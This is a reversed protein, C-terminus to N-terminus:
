TVILLNSTYGPADFHIQFHLPWPVSFFNKQIRFVRSHSFCYCKSRPSLREIIEAKKGQNGKKNKSRLFPPLLPSPMARGGRGWGSLKNFFYGKCNKYVLLQFFLSIIIIISSKQMKSEM